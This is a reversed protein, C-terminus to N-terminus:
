GGGGREGARWARCDRVHAAFEPVKLRLRQGCHPCFQRGDPRSLRISTLGTKWRKMSM